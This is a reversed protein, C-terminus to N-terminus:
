RFLGRSRALGVLVPLTVLLTLPFTLPHSALRLLAPALPRHGALWGELPSTTCLLLEEELVCSSLQTSVKWVLALAPLLPPLALWALGWLTSSAQTKSEELAPDLVMYLPVPPQRVPLVQLITEMLISSLLSLLSFLLFFLTLSFHALLWPQLDEPFRALLSPSPSTLLSHLSLLSLGCDSAALLLLLPSSHLRLWSWVMYALSTVLVSCPLLLPPLDRDATMKSHKNQLFEGRFGTDIDEYLELQDSEEFLRGFGPFTYNTVAIM